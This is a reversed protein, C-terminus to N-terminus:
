FRTRMVNRLQKRRTNIEYITKIVQKDLEELYYEAYQSDAYHKAPETTKEKLCERAYIIRWTYHDRLIELIRLNFQPDLLYSDSPPATKKRPKLIRVKEKDCFYDDLTLGARNALYKLATKRNYGLLEEALDLLGGSAGCSHCYYVHDDFSFSTPNKGKHIPCPMRKKKPQYGCDNLIDEITVRSKIEEFDVRSM